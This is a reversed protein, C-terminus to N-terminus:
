GLTPTSNSSRPSFPAPVAPASQNVVKVASAIKLVQQPSIDNFAALAAADFGAPEVIHAAIFALTQEDTVPQGEVIGLSARLDAQVRESSAEVVIDLASTTLEERLARIQGILDAVEGKHDAARAALVRESLVDIDALLDPRAFITTARRSPRAGALWAQLDFGEPAMANEPTVDRIEEAPTTDALSLETESM